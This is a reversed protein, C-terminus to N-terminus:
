AHGFWKVPKCESPDKVRNVEQRFKDIYAMLHDTMGGIATGPAMWAPRMVDVILVCRYRNTGLNCGSHIKADDFM